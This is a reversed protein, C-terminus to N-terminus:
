QQSSKKPPLKTLDILDMILMVKLVPKTAHYSYTAQPPIVVVDKPKAITSEGNVIFEGEGEFIYYIRPHDGVVRQGHDGTVESYIVSTGGNIDPLQYYWADQAVTNNIYADKETLKIM